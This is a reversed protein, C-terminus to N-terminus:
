KNLIKIRHTKIYWQDIYAKLFAKVIKKLKRKGKAQSKM